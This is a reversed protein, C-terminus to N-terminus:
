LACLYVMGSGLEEASPDAWAQKQIDGVLDRMVLDNGLRRAIRREFALWRGRTEKDVQWLSTKPPRGRGKRAAKRARNASVHMNNSRFRMCIKM